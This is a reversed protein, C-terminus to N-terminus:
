LLLKIYGVPFQQKGLSEATVTVQKEAHLLITYTGNGSLNNVDM